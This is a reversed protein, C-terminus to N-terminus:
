VRVAKHSGQYLEYKLFLCELSGNFLIHKKAPKLGVHKLAEINSSIIWAIHGPFSHKLTSGIMNYISYEEDTEFREGYPPNIILYGRDSDAKLTGFDAVDLSVSNSVGANIINRSSLNVAVESIDSAHIRVISERVASNGLESIKQFLDADYRIWNQFGFSKRFKGSPTNTAIMAAEISITGSGCMPDTLDSKADWGSLMLMGAALVENLPAVGQELRYGRKFLPLGSSDLSVTVLDNSIHLNILIEPNGTDVDPRRGATNRFHDAVADKLKLAAFGSHNFFRSNVVANVLFTKDANTFEEWDIHLSKRYLDDASNIRFEKITVLFSLATRVMYNVTYLTKMDGTFIVARNAIVIDRCGLSNLEDALVQELGYLTKAVIKM